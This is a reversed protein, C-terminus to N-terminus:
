FYVDGETYDDGGCSEVIMNVFSETENYYEKVRDIDVSIMNQPDVQVLMAVHRRYEEIKKYESHIMKRLLLYFDIMAHMEKNEPFLEKVANCKLVASKSYSEIKGQEKATELSCIMADDFANILREIISRIVDVTRTYKLSVYILHDARKLEEKADLLYEKM